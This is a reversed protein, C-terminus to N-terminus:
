IYGQSFMIVFKNINFYFNIQWFMIIIYYKSLYKLLIFYQFFINIIKEEIKLVSSFSSTVTDVLSIILYEGEGGWGERNGEFGGRWELWSGVGEGKRYVWGEREWKTLDMRGKGMGDFRDRKKVKWWIEGGKGKGDFGDRGKVKRWIGGVKGMWDFGDKGSGERLIWGERENKM